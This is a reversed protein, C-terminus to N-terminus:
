RALGEWLTSISRSGAQLVITIRILVCAARLHSHIYCPELILRQSAGNEGGSTSVDCSVAADALLRHKKVTGYLLHQTDMATVAPRLYRRDSPDSVAMLDRSPNAQLKIFDSCASVDNVTWSAPDDLPDVAAAGGAFDLRRLILQSLYDVDSSLYKCDGNFDGWVRSACPDCAAESMRRGVPESLMDPSRLENLLRYRRRAATVSAYGRGSVFPRDQVEEHVTSYDRTRVLMSLIVGEILTVGSGVVGLSVTGITM